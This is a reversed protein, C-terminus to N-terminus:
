EHNPGKSSFTVRGDPHVTRTIDAQNYLHGEPSVTPPKTLTVPGTLKLPEHLHQHIDKLEAMVNLLLYIATINLIGIFTLLYLM